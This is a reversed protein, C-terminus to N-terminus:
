NQSVIGKNLICATSEGVAKSVSNNICLLGLIEGAEAIDGHRKQVM